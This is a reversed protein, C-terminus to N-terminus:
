GADVYEKETERALRQAYRNVSRPTMGLKDALERSSANHWGHDILWVYEQYTADSRAQKRNRVPIIPVDDEYRFGARSWRHYCSGCLKCHRIFIEDGYCNNCLNEDAWIIEAMTLEDITM